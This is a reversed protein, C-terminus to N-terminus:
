SNSTAESLVNMQHSFVSLTKYYLPRRDKTFNSEKPQVKDDETKRPPPTKNGEELSCCASSSSASSESIPFAGLKVCLTVCLKVFEVVCALLSHARLVLGVGFVAMWSGPELGQLASLVMLCELCGTIATSKASHSLISGSAALCVSLWSTLPKFTSKKKAVFFSDEFCRSLLVTELCFLGEFGMFRVIKFYHKAAM